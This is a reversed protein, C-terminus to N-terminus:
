RLHFLGSEMDPDIRLVMKGGSFIRVNGDTASIVVATSATHATAVAAAMHRTGLGLPLEAEAEPATLFAAATQIFGDGRAIFAGDLKSLEVLADHNEPNTLMRSAKGHGELPNPVLQRSDKMVELSDGLMFITGIRKGRRAARGIKGAIEVTCDLVRPRIGDTLKVLDTIVIEGRHQEVETVVVVSAQGPFADQGVACVVLEGVSIAGSGLAVALVHRIQRYNDVAYLPLRLTVLGAKALASDAEASATAAIVRYPGTCDMFHRAFAGAGTVCIIADADVTEAIRKLRRALELDSSVDKASCNSM